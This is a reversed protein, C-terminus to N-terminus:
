RYDDPGFTAEIFVKGTSASNYRYTLVFGKDKYRKLHLDNRVSELLKARFTEIAETTLLSDNDLEGVVTYCYTFGAPATVYTMSDMRIYTDVMRPCERESYEKAERRCRDEFSETCSAALFAALLILYLPQSLINRM